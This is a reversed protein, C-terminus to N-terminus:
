RAKKCRKKRSTAGQTALRKPPANRLHVQSVPGPVLAHNSSTSPGQTTGQTISAAPAKVHTPAPAHAPAQMTAPAQVPAQGQAHPAPAANDKAPKASSPTRPMPNGLYPAIPGFQQTSSRTAPRKSPRSEGWVFHTGCTAWMRNCGCARKSALWPRACTPCWIARWKGRVKPRPNHLRTTCACSPCSIAIAEECARRKTAEPTRAPMPPKLVSDRAPKSASQELM